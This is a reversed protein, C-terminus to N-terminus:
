VVFCIQYKGLCIEITSFRIKPARLIGNRQDAFFKKSCGWFFKGILVKNWIKVMLFM